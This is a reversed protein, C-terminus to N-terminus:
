GAVTPGDSPAPVWRELAAELIASQIPKTLCDDMGAEICRNRDEDAASATLALIPVRTGRQSERARISATAELGDVGPMQLDMLVVDHRGREWAEIAGLGDAAVDVVCGLRELMRVAVRQNVANDEALLVRLRGLSTRARPALRSATAPLAAPVDEGCLATELRSRRLPLGIQARWGDRALTAVDVGASIPALLYLPATAALISPVAPARGAVLDRDVLIGDFARTRESDARRAAADFDGVRVCEAGLCGLHAEAAQAEYAHATVVLYRRGALTCLARTAESTVSGLTVQFWFTSGRGPESLVGIRGGMAEVLQRSIALGLGTGGFRRSMSGDAQSFSKFLRAQAEGDIGIGTDVVEFRLASDGPAGPVTAARVVVGGRSTFKVANGILNSLVQRLRHPDGVVMRPFDAAPAAAVRIGKEHATSASLEVVDELLQVPDFPVSELELKGAEIKSWDLIDNLVTLLGQGCARVTEAYGRQEADLETQLLLDVMGIVGNMPTRIEHSMNALFQSKMRATDLAADRAIALELEWRKRSTIDAHTGAVRLVSGDPGQIARGRDLVWRWGGDSRAVRYEAQYASVAGALHQELAARVLPLDDRHIRQHWEAISTPLPADSGILDALRASCFLHGTSPELDWISDGTGQTAHRWREEQLRRLQEASNREAILQARQFYHALQSAVESLLSVEHRSWTRPMPAALCLVGTLGPGQRVPVDLCAGVGAAAFASALAALMRSQCVDETAVCEGARLSALYTPAVSLDLEAVALSPKGDAGTSELVERWGREDITSYVVRVGKVHRALVAIALRAVDAVDHDPLVAEALAGLVELRRQSHRLETAVQEERRAAEAIELGARRLELLAVVQRALRQVCEIQEVSFARKELDLICLAGLANGSATVLPVGLYARIHPDATVLPSDASRPDRETDPIVMIRHPDQITRSCLSVSRPVQSVDIGFRAKLWARDGDIMSIVAIPANTLRAALRVIDDFSQEPDSDLIRLSKLEALRQAEDAPFPPSDLHQQKSDPRAGGCAAGM